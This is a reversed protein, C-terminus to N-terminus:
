MSLDKIEAEVAQQKARAAQTLRRVEDYKGEGLAQDVKAKSQMIEQIMSAVQTWPADLQQIETEPATEKAVQKGGSSGSSSVTSRYGSSQSFPALAKQALSALRQNEVANGAWGAQLCQIYQDVAMWIQVATANKQDALQQSGAKAAQTVQTIYESEKELAIIAAKALAPAPQEKKETLGTKVARIWRETIIQAQLVLANRRDLVQQTEATRAEAAQTIYTAERALCDAAIENISDASSLYSSLTWTVDGCGRDKKWNSPVSVEKAIQLFNEVISHAQIIVASWQKVAEEHTNNAATASNICRIEKVLEKTTAECCSATTSLVTLDGKTADGTLARKVIDLYQKALTQAQTAASNWQDARQQDGEEQAKIAQVRCSSEGGLRNAAAANNASALSLFSSSHSPNLLDDLFSHKGSLVDQIASLYRKTIEQAQTGIISWQESVLQDGARQATALQTLAESNLELNDAVTEYLEALKEYLKFKKCEEAATLAHFTADALLDTKEGQKVGPIKNGHEIATMFCNMVSLNLTQLSKKVYDITEPSSSSGLLGAIKKNEEALMETKYAITTWLHALEYEEAAELVSIKARYEMAQQSQEAAKMWYYPESQHGAMAAQLARTMHEVAKPAAKIKVPEVVNDMTAQPSDSSSFSTTENSNGHTGRTEIVIPTNGETRSPVGQTERGTVVTTGTGGEEGTTGLIEELLEEGEVLSFTGGPTSCFLPTNNNENAFSPHVAFLFCSLNTIFITKITKKM